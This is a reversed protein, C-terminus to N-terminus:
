AEAMEEAYADAFDQAVADRVAVPFDHRVSGGFQAVYIRAGRDVLYRWLKPAKTHAYVGREMKRTLNKQIPILQSRHLQEDNQIFLRLEGRAWQQGDSMTM